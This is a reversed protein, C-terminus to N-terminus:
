LITRRWSSHDPPDQSPRVRDIRYETANPMIEWAICSGLVDDDHCGTAAEARKGTNIFSMLEGIAHLCPIEVDYNRIAAAFAEILIGREFKAMRFGFVEVGENTRQSKEKHKYLPIGSNRLLRMQEGAGGFNSEVGVICRGYFISLRAIHGAAVDGDSFSPPKLRAVLKAPRWQNSFTDHFGKRWVCISHRDPDKSISQSIDGAPDAAILYKLGEQPREWIRIDGTGDRSLTFGVTEEGQATLFGDEYLASKARTKMEALITMDFRPSGSALWCSVDDSPYYYAFTKPDGNCKSQITDRRWAVQEWDLGYKVIESEEHHSLTKKIYEVEAESVPKQRRNSEFEHWAAFVKIWVEEPRFGAKWRELFEELTIAEETWTKHQWGRAGEPTSESFMVTNLGSVAPALCTMTKADNLTQTQPWKSTESCHAFQYTGGAGADPNQATDVTWRSGNTWSIGHASDRDQKIGWPFSDFDAYSQLKAMAEASHEKSDSITIGEIPDVMATHYGIHEVFSSCGARRPKTVIIRVRIGLAKLTEFAENMRLQLINPKPDIIQNNDDKIRCFLAFHIAPSNIAAAMIEEDTSEALRALEEEFRVALPDKRLM